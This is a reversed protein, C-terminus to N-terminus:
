CLSNCRQCNKGVLATFRDGCASRAWKLDDDIASHKVSIANLEIANKLYDIIKNCYEEKNFVLEPSIDVEYKGMLSLYCAANFYAFGTSDRPLLREANKLANRLMEADVIQGNDPFEIAKKFYATGINLQAFFNTFLPGKENRVEQIFLRLDERKVSEGTIYTLYKYYASNPHVSQDFAKRSEKEHGLKWLLLGRMFNCESDKKDVQEVWGLAKAYKTKRLYYKTLAKKTENNVDLRYGIKKLLNSLQEFNQITKTVETSIPPARLHDFAMGYGIEVDGLADQISSLQSKVESIILETANYFVFKHKVLVIVVLLLLLFSFCCFVIGIIITNEDIGRQVIIFMFASTVLLVIIPISMPHNKWQEM